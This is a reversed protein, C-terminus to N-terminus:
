NNVHLGCENKGNFNPFFDTSNGRASFNGSINRIVLSSAIDQSVDRVYVFTM